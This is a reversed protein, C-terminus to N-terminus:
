CRLSCLQWIRSHGTAAGVPASVSRRMGSTTRSGEADATLLPRASGPCKANFFYRTFMARCPGTYPPQLCFAPHLGNDKNSDDGEPTGAVLTGLLVLLATSLCLRSM